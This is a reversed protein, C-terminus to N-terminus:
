VNSLVYDTFVELTSSQLRSLLDPVKLSAISGTCCLLVNYSALVVDMKFVNVLFYVNNFVFVRKFM